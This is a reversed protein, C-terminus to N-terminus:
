FYEGCWRRRMAGLHGDVTVPWNDVPSDESKVQHGKTGLQM